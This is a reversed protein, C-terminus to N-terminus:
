KEAMKIPQNRRYHFPYSQVIGTILTVSRYDDKAVAQAIERVVPIDYYELGRGLAYSLMKETLNRIFEPKRALLIQKLEVPGNFKEGTVMQGSADVAQDGITARWRGIADFNELGFGLPDMRKHCSACEPKERHQELQQRFTLGEKPHDDTPLSKVLPPPPPPPTGLIEELVWKGRLVPSTRLPYSTLTLVGGMGLVGGRRHNRLKVRQFEAGKVGDLGYLKALEENVYTYDADLLNLLSGNERLISQMFAVPEEIMADRLAPSFEKFRNPDPQASTRLERVRLWQTTFNEAFARAKPDLLMRRIQREMEPAEHLQNRKALQFLEEDPMSSWLFYSLRSALEFDNIRYAEATPRDTEIRFLFDPSVLIAKLALKVAAEHKAGRKVGGDYLSMLRAVEEKEPPRRFAREAYHDIIKRATARPSSWFTPQAFFLREPKAEALVDDAAELMKEMLIPPIFLSSANNDFGAGGGGDSPFKDAPQSTVGFLDRMTNNYEFRSLRHILVRGPDKPVEGRDLRDLKLAVWDTLRDREAPTPQPKGDPPMDRDRLKALVTQWLKPDRWVATEDKFQQLNVGAKPKTAGHCKFCYQEILPQIEHEFAPKAETAAVAAAGALWCAFALWWRGAYGGNTPEIRRTKRTKM